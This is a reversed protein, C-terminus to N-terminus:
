AELGPIEPLAPAAPRLVTPMDPSPGAVYQSSLDTIATHHAAAWTSAEEVSGWPTGDPWAPQSLFKVDSNDFMSVEFTAADVEYRM